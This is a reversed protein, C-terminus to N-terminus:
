TRTQGEKRRVWDGTRFRRGSMVGGGRGVAGGGRRRGANKAIRKGGGWWRRKAKVTRGTKAVRHAGRKPAPMTKVNFAGQERIRRNKIVKSDERYRDRSRDHATRKETQRASIIPALASSVQNALDRHRGSRQTTTTRVVSQGVGRHHQPHSFTGIPKAAQEEEVGGRRGESGGGKGRGIGGWFAKAREM